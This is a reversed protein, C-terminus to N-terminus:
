LSCKVDYLVCLKLTLTDLSYVYTNAVELNDQTPFCPPGIKKKGSVEGGIFDNLNSSGSLSPSGSM